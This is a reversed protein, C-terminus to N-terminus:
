PLISQHISVHAFMPELCPSACSMTICVAMHQREKLGATISVLVNERMCWIEAGHQSGKQLVWEQEQPRRQIESQINCMSVYSVDRVLEEQFHFPITCTKTPPTPFPYGLSVMEQWTTGPSSRLPPPRLANTTGMSRACSGQGPSSSCRSSSSTTVM